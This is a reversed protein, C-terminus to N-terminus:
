ITCACSEHCSLAHRVSPRGVKNRDVDKLSNCKLTLTRGYLLAGVLARNLYEPTCQVPDDYRIFSGLQYKLFRSAQESPDILLPFKEEQYLSDEIADPLKKLVCKKMPEAATATAAPNAVSAGAGM